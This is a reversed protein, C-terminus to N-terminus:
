KGLKEARYFVFIFNFPDSVSVKAELAREPPLSNLFEVAGNSTLFEKVMWVLVFFKIWKPLVSM